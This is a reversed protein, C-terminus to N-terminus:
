KASCQDFQDVQDDDFWSVVFHVLHGYVIGNPRLFVGFPWLIYRCRGNCSGGFNLRIPFKPKLCYWRAAMRSHDSAM